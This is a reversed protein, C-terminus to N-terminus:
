HTARRDRLDELDKWRVAPQRSQIHWLQAGNTAKLVTRYLHCHVAKYGWLKKLLRPQITHWEALQARDLRRMKRKQRAALGDGRSLPTGSEIAFQYADARSVLRIKAAQFAHEVTRYTLGEHEVHCADSFNSLVKRWGPISALTAYEAPEAVSENTGRGPLADKSNSWFYLKDPM